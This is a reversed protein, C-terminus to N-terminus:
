SSRAFFFNYDINIPVPVKHLHLPHPPLPPRPGAGGGAPVGGVEVCLHENEMWDEYGVCLTYWRCLGLLLLYLWTIIFMDARASSMSFCNLPITWRIRLPTLVLSLYDTRTFQLAPLKGSNKSNMLTKALCGGVKSHDKKIRKWRNQFWCLILIKHYGGSASKANNFRFAWM